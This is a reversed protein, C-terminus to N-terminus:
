EGLLSEIISSLVLTLIWIAIDGAYMHLLSLNIEVINYYLTIVIIAVLIIGVRFHKM